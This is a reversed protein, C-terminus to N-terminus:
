NIENVVENLTTTMSYYAFLNIMFDKVIRNREKKSHYLKDKSITVDSLNKLGLNYAEEISKLFEEQSEITKKNAYYQEITSRINSNKEQKQFSITQKKYELDKQNAQINKEIERVRSSDYGGSFIPVKIELYVM